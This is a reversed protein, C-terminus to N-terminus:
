GKHIWKITIYTIVVLTATISLSDALLWWFNLQEGIEPPLSIVWLVYLGIALLIIFVDAIIKARM